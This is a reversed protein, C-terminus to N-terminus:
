GRRIRNKLWETTDDKMQATGYRSSLQIRSEYTHWIQTYICMPLQFKVFAFIYFRLSTIKKLNM